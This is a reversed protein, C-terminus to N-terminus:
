VNSRSGGFKVPHASQGARPMHHDGAKTGPLSLVPLKLPPPGMLGYM